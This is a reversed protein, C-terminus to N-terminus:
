LIVSQHFMNVFVGVDQAGLTISADASKEKSNLKFM